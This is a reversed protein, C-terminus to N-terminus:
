KRPQLKSIHFWFKNFFLWKWTSSYCIWKRAMQCCCMHMHVCVCVCAYVQLSICVFLCAGCRKSRKHIYNEKEGWNIGLCDELTGINITHIVTVRTVVIKCKLVDRESIQGGSTGSGHICHCQVITFLVVNRTQIIQQVKEPEPYM